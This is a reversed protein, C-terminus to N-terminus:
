RLWRIMHPFPAPGDRESAGAHACLGHFGLMPAGIHHGAAFNEALWPGDGKYGGTHFLDSPSLGCELAAAWSWALAMMEDAPDAEPAGLIPRLVPDAVAIHGAEHLLDGPWVPVAPDVLIRGGSIVLGDLLQADEGDRLGTEIGITELFALCLRAASEGGGEERWRCQAAEVQAM